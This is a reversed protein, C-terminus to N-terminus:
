NNILAERVRMLTNGLVNEGNWKKGKEADLVGIGIGWIKDRPSAEALIEEGTELLIDKLEPIQFKLMLVEFAIKNRYELWKINDFPTVQRGYKKCKQPSCERAIKSAIETDDMLLAKLWMIAQEATNVEIEESKGVIKASIKFKSPYFNSYEGNRKTPGFFYVVM